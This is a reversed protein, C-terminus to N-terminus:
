SSRASAGRRDRDGGGQDCREPPKLPLPTRRRIAAHRARDTKRHCREAHEDHPCERRASGAMDPQRRQRKRRVHVQQPQGSRKAIRQRAKAADVSEPECGDIQLLRPDPIQATHRAEDAGVCQEDGSRRREEHDTKNGFALKTRPARRRQGADRHRERRWRPHTDRHQGEDGPGGDHKERRGKACRRDATMSRERAQYVFAHEALLEERMMVAEARRPPDDVGVATACKTISSADFPSTRHSARM